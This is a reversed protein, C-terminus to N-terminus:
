MELLLSHAFIIKPHPFVKENTGYMIMIAQEGRWAKRDIRDELISMNQISYHNELPLISCVNRKRFQISDKQELNFGYHDNIDLMGSDIALAPSTCSSKDWPCHTPQASIRINPRPNMNRCSTPLFSDNTYCNSAYAKVLPNYADVLGYPSPRPETM